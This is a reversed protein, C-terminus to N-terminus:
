SQLPFILLTVSLMWWKETPSLLQSIAYQNSTFTTEFFGQASDLVRAKVLEIGDETLGAPNKSLLKDVTDAVDHKQFQFEPFSNLLIHPRLLWYYISSIQPTSLGLNQLAPRMFCSCASRLDEATAVRVQNTSFLVLFSSRYLRPMLECNCALFSSLSPLHLVIKTATQSLLGDEICSGGYRKFGQVCELLGDV